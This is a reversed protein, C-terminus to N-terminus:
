GDSRDDIRDFAVRHDSAARHDAAAARADRRSQTIEETECERCVVHFTSDLEGM